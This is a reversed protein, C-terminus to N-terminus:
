RSKSRASKVPKRPLETNAQHLAYASRAVMERVLARDLKPDTLLMDIASYWLGFMFGTYVRVGALNVPMGSQKLFHVIEASMDDQAARDVAQLAAGIPGRDYRLVFFLKMEEMRHDTLLADLSSDFARQFRQRIDQDDLPIKVGAWVERRITGIARRVADAFHEAAVSLCEDVNAFYQYFGSQSMGIANALRTTTVAGLGDDRAIELAVNVLKARIDDRSGLSESKPPRGPGRRKKPKGARMDPRFVRRFSSARGYM